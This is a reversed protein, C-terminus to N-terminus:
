QVSDMQWLTNGKDGLPYDGSIAFVNEIGLAYIDELARLIDLRDRGVCTVHTNPTLGRAKVGAGIRVPDHGASGGAYSTVSAAVLGPVRSLDSAIEFVKSEPQKASAVLEVMYFFRGSALAEKILNPSEM